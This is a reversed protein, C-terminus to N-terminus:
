TKPDAQIFMDIVPWVVDHLGPTYQIGMGSPTRMLIHTRNATTMAIQGLSETMNWNVVDHFLIIHDRALFPKIALYDALQQDNTHLGDIFCLDITGGLHTTVVGPVDQPSRGFVVAANLRQETAMANTLDIGIRADDGEVGNDLAVARAQPALCALLLTSWGFANGIVFINAPTWVDLLCEFVYYEQLSIGGGTSLMRGGQYLATFPADRYNNFHFPNLGTRVALGRARYM